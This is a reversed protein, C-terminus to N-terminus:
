AQEKKVPRNEEEIEVADTIGEAAMKFEKIGGGLAKGLEPLKKPGFIVVALVLILILEPAGINFM